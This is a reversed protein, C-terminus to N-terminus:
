KLVLRVTLNPLFAGVRIQLWEVQKSLPLDPLPEPLDMSELRAQLGMQSELNKWVEKPWPEKAELIMKLDYDSLALGPLTRNSNRPDVRPGVEKKFQNLLESLTAWPHILSQISQVNQKLEWFIESPFSIPSDPNINEPLPLSHSSALKPDSSSVPSPCFQFWLVPNACVELLDDLVQLKEWKGLPSLSPVIESLFSSQSMESHTEGLFRLSAKETAFRWELPSLPNECSHMLADVLGVPHGVEPQSEFCSRVPHNVPLNQISKKAEQTILTESNPRVGHIQLWQATKRMWLRSSKPYTVVRLLGRPKLSEALIQILKQPQEVHHIVNSAIIYDFPEQTPLWEVLDACVFQMRPLGRPFRAIRAFRMRKKLQHLSAQSLDVAVLERAHPHVQAVVSAEFTGAGAVLIRIGSHSVERGIALQSGLEYRLERGQNKRPLALFPIPPYPFREYQGKVRDGIEM